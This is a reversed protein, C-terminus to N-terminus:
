TTQGASYESVTSFPRRLVPLASPDLRADLSYGVCSLTPGILENLIEVEDLGFRARWQVNMDQLAFRSALFQKAPTSPALGCFGAVADLVSHPTGLFREYHIEGYRDPAVRESEARTTEVVRRWQVAALALPSGDYRHWDELDEATLGNRWAPENMRNRERWFGVRLLSSVVARGDRIVHVFHADPFISTLYAIRGPGTIKAAFRQKGHYRTVRSIRSRVCRREDPTAEVGLLYDFRFKEGCCDEWFTYAEVPGIRLRELSPRIQISGRVARRMRPTVDTLRSLIALMPLRPARAVPQSLWALDKHAAFVEFLLTTASRPMGVFFIPRDVANPTVDARM